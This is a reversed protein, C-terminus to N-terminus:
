AANEKDWWLVAWRVTRIRPLRLRGKDHVLATDLYARLRERETDTIEHVMWSLGSVAEDLNAFTRDDRHTTFTLNAYIGIQRLYNLVVIYDVGPTFNRGTAAILNRDFPGDGVLTSLYVRRRAHHQLKDVAMGLDSVILSRSAIVVDHLGIDLRDWDDEWRGEVIRITDVNERVSRETLLERMVVSPELATVRAGRRALPIALTGAAAGIDLVTEDPRVDCLGMFQDIYDGRTVARTFDKARKDWHSGQRDQLAKKAHHARWIRSWDFQMYTTDTLDM